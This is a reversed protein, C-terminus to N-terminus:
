IWNFLRLQNAFADSIVKHGHTTPHVDDAFQWTLPDAGARLGYYPAGVTSNCFLSTGDTVAGGTIASIAAPDCAPVTNNVFGNATPNQYASKSLAYTDVIRVPKGALDDSLSTNFVQSLATLEAHLSTPLSNGFPTDGIDSLNMVAVYLGGKALIQTKVDDALEQAATRMAQEAAAQATAIAQNAQAATMTGAAALTQAQVVVAAFSDFQVFVDNNGAYVLILDSAKFSTFRALHNAIQQVIPVTLAGSGDANHGLGNPDTIRAGGQGYGTCSAALSAVSAAPCKVSVGNFGVEAPTVAIGLSKALNEVWITATASNTTFKGGFYPPAGNGTLSTAPTYTGLDSLSDGFSVLATFTGPTKPPGSFDSGGCAALLLASLLATAATFRAIIM